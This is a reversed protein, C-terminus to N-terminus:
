HCWMFYTCTLISSLDLNYDFVKREWSQLTKNTEKELSTKNGPHCLGGAWVTETYVWFKCPNLFVPSDNWSM